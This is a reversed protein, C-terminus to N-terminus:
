RVGEEVGRRLLEVAVPVPESAREKHHQPESPLGHDRIQHGNVGHFIRFCEDCRQVVSAQPM